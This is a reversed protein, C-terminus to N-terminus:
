NSSPLPKCETIYQQTLQQTIHQQTIHEAVIDPQCFTQSYTIRYSARTTIPLAATAFTITTAAYSAAAITATRMGPQLWM